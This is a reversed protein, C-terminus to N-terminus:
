SRERRLALSHNLPSFVAHDVAHFLAEPAYEDLVIEAGRVFVHFSRVRRLRGSIMETADLVVTQAGDITTLKSRILTLTRDRARAAGILLSRAHAAAGSDAPPPGTRHYRWLAIVATGSSFTGVLPPTDSAHTWNTPVKFSVAVGPFPFTLRALSTPAAPAFVNPVPARSTGCGALLAGACALAALV